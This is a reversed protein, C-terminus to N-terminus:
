ARVLQALRGEDVCLILGRMGNWAVFLFVHVMLHRVIGKVFSLETCKHCYKM